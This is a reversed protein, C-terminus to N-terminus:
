EGSMVAADALAAAQEGQAQTVVRYDKTELGYDRRLIRECVMVKRMYVLREAETCHLMRSAAVSTNYLLIFAEQVIPLEQVDYNATVSLAM